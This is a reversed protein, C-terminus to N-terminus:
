SDCLEVSNGRPVDWNCGEILDNNVSNIMRIRKEHETQQQQSSGIEISYFVLAM